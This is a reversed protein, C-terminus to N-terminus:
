SKEIQKSFITKKKRKLNVFYIILIICIIIIPIGLILSPLISFLYNSESKFVPNLFYYYSFSTCVGASFSLILFLYDIGTLLEKKDHKEEAHILSHVMRQLNATMMTSTFNVSNMKRFSELLFAGILSLLVNSFVNSFSFDKAALITGVQDFEVPIFIIFLLLFASILLEIPQNNKQRKACFYEILNAIILGAIFSFVAILSIGLSNWDLKILNTFISILNGTQMLAFYGRNYLSYSELVGGIFSLALALFLSYTLNKSNKM